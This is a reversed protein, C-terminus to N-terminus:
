RIGTLPAMVSAILLVVLIAWVKLYNPHHIHAESSM